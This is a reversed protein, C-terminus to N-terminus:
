LQEDIKNEKIWAVLISKGKKLRAKVTNVNISFMKSIRSCPVNHLINMLLVDKYIDPLSLIKKVILSNIEDGEVDATVDEDSEMEGLSDLSIFAERKNKEIHNFAKNKAITYIFSKLMETNDFIIRDINNAISYWAEQLVDEAVHINKTYNMIGKLLFGNYQRYLMEFKSKQEESEIMSLYISLM